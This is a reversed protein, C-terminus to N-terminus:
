ENIASRSSPSREPAVAKKLRWVQRESLQMLTAAQALTIEALLLKTLIMTRQQDTSTM